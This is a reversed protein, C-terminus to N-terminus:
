RRETYRRPQSSRLTACLCERTLPIAAIARVAIRSALPALADLVGGKLINMQPPAFYNSFGVTIYTCNVFCAGIERALTAEPALSHNIFDAGLRQYATAEAATQFRPGWSHGAVLGVSQGYVRSPAPWLPIATEAVVAACAPCMMQKGSCDFSLRGPLLSHQTQTLELVDNAIVFDGPLIGRNLSGATSSALVCRVGAQELVSFVRRHAEHDIRDLPWGHSFVSLVRRPEREPTHAASLEWLKWESSQGWPTDFTMQDQMVVVGPEALDEPFRLGWAASGCVIAFDVRPIPTDRL